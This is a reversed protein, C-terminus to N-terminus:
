DQNDQRVHNSGTLLLEVFVSNGLLNLRRVPNRQQTQRLQRRALRDLAPQRVGVAADLRDVQVMRHVFLLDLPELGAAGEVAHLFHGGGGGVLFVLPRLSVSFVFVARRQVVLTYCFFVLFVVFFFWFFGDSHKSRAKTNGLYKPPVTVM